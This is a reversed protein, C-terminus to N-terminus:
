FSGFLYGTIVLIGSAICFKTQLGRADSFERRKIAVAAPVILLFLGGLPAVIIGLIDMVKIDSIVAPALLCFTIALLLNENKRQNHGSQNLPNPNNGIMSLLALNYGIYIGLFSTTQALISVGHGLSSLWSKSLQSGLLDLASINRTNAMAFNEASITVMFSSVFILVFAMMISTTIAITQRTLQEGGHRSINKTKLESILESLSPFFMFSTTLIPYLAILQRLSHLPNPITLSALAININWSPILALSITMLLAALILSLSGLLEVLISKALIIALCLFTLISLPLWLPSATEANIFHHETLVVRLSESLGISYAMLLVFLWAVFLLKLVTAQRPLWTTVASAFDSGTETRSAILAYYSHGISITPWVLLSTALLVWIGGQAAQNPLFLIGAGIATGFFALVHSAIQSIGLTSTARMKLTRGM